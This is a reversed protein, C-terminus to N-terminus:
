RPAAAAAARSAARSCAETPVYADSPPCFNTNRTLFSPAWPPYLIIVSTLVGM